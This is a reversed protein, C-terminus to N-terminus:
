GGAAAGREFPAASQPGIPRCWGSARAAERGLRGGVSQGRRNTLPPMVTRSFRAPVPPGGERSPPGRRPPRRWRSRTLIKPSERRRRRTRCTLPRRLSGSKRGPPNAPADWLARRTNGATADKSAVLVSRPENMGESSLPRAAVDTDDEIPALSRGAGLQRFFLAGLILLLVGIVALGIKTEKGMTQAEQEHSPRPPGHCGRPVEPTKRAAVRWAFNPASACSPKARGGGREPPATKKDTSRLASRRSLGGERDPRGAFPLQHGGSAGRRGPLESFGGASAGAVWARREGRNAAGSVHRTAPDIRRSDPSRPVSSRVVDALQRATRIPEAARREVIARAIRRSHREEGYRFIVDALEAATLRAILQWAPEGEDPDFRLDLEGPADFSFGRTADALQDSSLGLDLLIGDVQAIGAEHLVEGLECYNARAIKM